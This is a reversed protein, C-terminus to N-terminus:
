ASPQPNISQVNASCLFSRFKLHVFSEYMFFIIMKSLYWVLLFISSSPDIIIKTYGTDNNKWGIFCLILSKAKRKVYMIDYNLTLIIIYVKNTIDIPKNNILFESHSSGSNGTYHLYNNACCNMKSKIHCQLLILFTKNEGLFTHTQIYICTYITYACIHMYIFLMNTHM